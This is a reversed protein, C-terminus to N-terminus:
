RNYGIKIIRESENSEDFNIEINYRDEPLQGNARESWEILKISGPSHVCENFGIEALEDAKKIRYLDLHFIPIEEGDKIGSYQNIITFTPSTVIEGVKFYNCIGKIFETKGSGLDGYFAVVDGALLRGAFEGGLKITEEESFTKCAETEM